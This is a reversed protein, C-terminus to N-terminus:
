ADEKNAALVDGLSHLRCVPVQDAALSPVAMHLAASLLQPGNDVMPRALSRGSCNLRGDRFQPYTLTLGVPM